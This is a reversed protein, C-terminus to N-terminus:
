QATRDFPSINRLQGIIDKLNEIVYDIQAETTDRGLSFRISGRALVPDLGMALLVPSPDPTGSSCASGTSVEIGKIDLMMLISEGEIGGFSVNLTNPLVSENHGNIKIDQYGSELANKLKEKLAKMRANVAHFSKQNIELAKSFGAIGIINETGPRMNKEQHGGFCVPEIGLGSKVYLAGVGKPGNIKHASFSIMDAGLEATKLQLKGFAQVADTHVAIKESYSKVIDVIDRVPQITGVENNALMTSVLATQENLVSALNEKDVMGYEDVDVFSVEYGTKELYRFTNLVSPHEITSTVIHRKGTHRLYGQIAINNAETGGSTFFIEEAQCGIAEAIRSRANEVIDRTKTGSKHMSSPNGYLCAVENMREIVERILPTTSNNDLYVNM